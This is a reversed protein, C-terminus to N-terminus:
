AHRAVDGLVVAARDSAGLEHAEVEPLDAVDVDDVVTELLDTGVFVRLAEGLRDEAVDAEPSAAAAASVLELLELRLAELLLPTPEVLVVALLQRREDVLHLGTPHRRDLVELLHGGRADGDRPRQELLQREHVRARTADGDLADRAREREGPELVLEVHELHLEALQGPQRGVGVLARLLDLALDARELRYAPAQPGELLPLVVERLDEALHVLRRAGLARRRPAPGRDRRRLLRGDVEAAPEQQRLSGPGIVPKVGISEIRAKVPTVHPECSWAM